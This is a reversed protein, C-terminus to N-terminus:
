KHFDPFPGNICIIYNLVIYPQLNTHPQGGGTSALSGILTPTGQAEIKLDEAGEIRASVPIYTSDDPSAYISNEPIGSIDPAAAPFAEGGPITTTGGSTNVPLCAKSVQHNLPPIVAFGDIGREPYLDYTAHNHAAIQSINLKVTEQGGRQALTYLDSGPLQGAGVAVATRMDPLRFYKKNDGGFKDGIIEHLAPYKAIELTQGECFLFGDPAWTLPWLYMGGMMIPNM